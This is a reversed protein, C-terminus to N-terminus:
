AVSTNIRLLELAADDIAQAVLDDFKVEADGAGVTKSGSDVEIPMGNVDVTFRTGYCVTGDLSITIKPDIAFERLYDLISVPRDFGEPITEDQIKGLLNAVLECAKLQEQTAM